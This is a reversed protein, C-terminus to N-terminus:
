RAETKFYMLEAELFADLGGDLVAEVNGTEYGTRHDKILQYPQLVYSRIQSGWAIEGAQQRKEDEQKRRAEAQLQYLRSKLILMAMERNQHQSRENQCTVVIGTPLHTIRIATEVKNVNQGGAGGARYTQIEIDKENVEIEAEPPLEPIVALSAFSTHRRRNADFPSIRVLRHVGAEGKLYGYAHPASVILTARKVGAEEGPLLDVVEGKWRRSAVFRQYMRLLMSVWDCSETGGAGAHFTLIAPQRDEPERFTVLIHLERLQKEIEAVQRAAEEELKEDPEAELLELMVGWDGLQKEAAEFANLEERLEKLEEIVRRNDSKEWFSDSGMEKELELRRAEKSSLGAMERAQDLRERFDRNKDQLIKLEIPM